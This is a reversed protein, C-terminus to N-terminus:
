LIINLDDFLKYMESVGENQCSDFDFSKLKHFDIKKLYPLLREYIGDNETYCKKNKSYHAFLNADVNFRRLEPLLEDYSAFYKTTSPNEHIYFWYEFCPNNVIVTLKNMLKKARSYYQMFEQLVSNKKKSEQNRKLIDDFDIIWFIHKYGQKIYHEILEFQEKISSRHLEIKKSFNLHHYTMMLEIYWEETKGDVIFAYGLPQFEKQLRRRAM